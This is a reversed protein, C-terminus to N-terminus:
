INTFESADDDGGGDGADGAEEEPEDKEPKDSGDVDTKPADDDDDLDGDGDTDGTVEGYDGDGGSDDGSDGGADDGSGDGYGDSGDSGEGDGGEDKKEKPMTAKLYKEVTSVLGKWHSQMVDSLDLLPSGASDQTVLDSLETMYGHRQQWDRLFHGMLIEILGDPDSVDLGSSELTYRSVWAEIATQLADKYDSYKTALAKVDSDVSTSAVDVVINEIFSYMVEALFEEKKADTEKGYMGKLGKVGDLSALLRTQIVKDNLCIIKVLHTAHGMIRTRLKVARKMTLQRNAEATTAFDVDVGSDIMDQTVGVKNLMSKKLEEITENNNNVPIQATTDTYEFALQPIGPHNTYTFSMGARHLWDALSAPALVGIPLDLQKAKLAESQAIEITKGPNPDDPDLSIQVSTTRINNKVEGLVKSFLLTSRLSALTCLEELKNIGIGIENYDLAFYACLEYPVFLIKTNRKSLTRALMVQYFARNNSILVDPINYGAKIRNIFTREVTKIYFDIADNDSVKGSGKMASKAEDRIQEGVTSDKFRERLTAMADAKDDAEMEDDSSVSYGMSNFAIYYGIHDTPRGPTYVPLIAEANPSMVLPRGVADRSSGRLTGVDLIKSKDESEGQVPKYFDRIDISSAGSLRAENSADIASPVKLLDLNDTIEIGLLNDATWVDSGKKFAKAKKYSQTNGNYSELGNTLDAGQSLVSKKKLQGDKDYLSDKVKGLIDGRANIIDDLANEAIVVYTSSGKRMLCEEAIDDLTNMVPYNSTVEDRVVNLLKAMIDPPLIKGKSGYVLETTAMDRSNLALTILIQLGLEIDPFLTLIHKTNEVRTALEKPRKSLTGSELEDYRYTKEDSVMKSLVAVTEPAKKFLDNLAQKNVFKHKM